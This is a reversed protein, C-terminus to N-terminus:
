FTGEALAQPVKNLVNGEAIANTTLTSIVTTHHAHFGMKLVLHV